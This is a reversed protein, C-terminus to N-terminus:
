PLERVHVLVAVINRDAVVTDLQGRLEIPTGDDGETLEEFIAWGTKRM